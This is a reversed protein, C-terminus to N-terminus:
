NSAHLLPVSRAVGGFHVAARDINWPFRSHSGALRATYAAATHAGRARAAVVCECLSCFFM